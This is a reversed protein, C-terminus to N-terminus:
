MCTPAPESTSLNWIQTEAGGLQEIHQGYPVCWRRRTGQQINKDLRSEDLLVFLDENLPM